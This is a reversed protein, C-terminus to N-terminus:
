QHFPLDRIKHFTSSRSLTSISVPLHRYCECGLYRLSERKNLEIKIRWFKRDFQVSMSANPYIFRLSMTNDYYQHYQYSNYIITIVFIDITSSKRIRVLNIYKKIYEKDQKLSVIEKYLYTNLLFIRPKSCFLCM